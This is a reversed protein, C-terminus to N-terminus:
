GDDMTLVWFGETECVFVLGSSHSGHVVLTRSMSHITAPSIASFVLAVSLSATKQEMFCLMCILGQPGLPFLTHCKLSM